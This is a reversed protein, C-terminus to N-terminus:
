NADERNKLHIQENLKRVQARCAFYQMCWTTAYTAASSLTFSLVVPPTIPAFCILEVVIWVAATITLHTAGQKLFSWKEISFLVSGAGFAFGILGILLPQLLAAIKESGVRAIFNPTCLSESGCLVAILGGILTVTVSVCYSVAGRALSKKWM